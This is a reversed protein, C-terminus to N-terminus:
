VSGSGEGTGGDRWLDVMRFSRCVFSAETVARAIEEESRWAVEPHSFTMRGSLARNRCGRYFQRHVALATSGRSRASCPDGADPKPLIWIATEREVEAYARADAM